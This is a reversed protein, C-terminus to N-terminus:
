AHLEVIDEDELLYEKGVRQGDFVKKGWIRAFRFSDALERHVTEALEIVTIGKKVIYPEDIDAKKGPIKTYIRLIQLSEALAATFVEMNMTGVASTEVLLFKDQLEARVLDRVEPNAIDCKTLAIFAKKPVTGLPPHGMQLGYIYVNANDIAKFVSAMEELTSEQSVDFCIMAGDSSRLLDGMWGEMNDSIIPPLDVFQCRYYNHRFIGPFPKTTTYPYEAVDSAATTLRNILASKGSNPAGLIVMQPCDERDVSYPNYTSVGAKKKLGEKELRSIRARLDAKLHDTGKHKPMIGLMEELIRIKEESTKAQRFREEAAYYDPPLNAPM